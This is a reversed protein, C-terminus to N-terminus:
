LGVAFVRHHEYQFFSVGVEGEVHTVRVKGDGRGTGGTGIPFFANSGAAINQLFPLRAISCKGLAIWVIPFLIAGVKVLDLRATNRVDSGPDDGQMSSLNVSHVPKLKSESM